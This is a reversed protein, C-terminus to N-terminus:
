SAKVEARIHHDFDGRLVADIRKTVGADASHKTAPAAKEKLTPMANAVAGPLGCLKLFAHDNESDGVRSVNAPSISHIELAAQVGSAKNVGPALIKAALAHWKM